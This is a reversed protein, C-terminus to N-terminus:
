KMSEWTDAFTEAPVLLRIPQDDLSFDMSVYASVLPISLFQKADNHIEIIDSAGYNNVSAIKGMYLGESDEIKRGILDDWFFEEDEDITLDKRQCLIPAGKLVEVTNRSDIGEIATVLRGNQIRSWKIKRSQLQRSKSQPDRIAVQHLGDPFPEIRGFVFFAGQLGHAKGVTGIEM